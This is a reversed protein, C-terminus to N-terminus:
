VLAATRKWTAADVKVYLYWNPATYVPLIDGINGESSGPVTTRVTHEHASQFLDVMNSQVVAAFDLLGKDSDLPPAIETRQQKAM